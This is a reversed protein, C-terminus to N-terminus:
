KSAIRQSRLPNTNAVYFLNIEGNVGTTVAISAIGALNEAFAMHRPVPSTCSREVAMACNM